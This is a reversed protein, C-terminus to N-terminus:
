RKVDVARDIGQNGCHSRLMQSSISYSLFIMPIDYPYLLSIIPIDYPYSLSIIPIYYKSSIGRSSFNQHVYGYNYNMWKYIPSAVSYPSAGTRPLCQGHHWIHWVLYRYICLYNYMSIELILIDLILNFLQIGKWLLVIPNTDVEKRAEIYLTSWKWKWCCRCHGDPLIWWLAGDLQM